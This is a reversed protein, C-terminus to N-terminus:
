RTRNDQRLFRLSPNGAPDPIWQQRRLRRGWLALFANIANTLM